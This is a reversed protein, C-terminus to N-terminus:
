YILEFDKTRFSMLDYQVATNGGDQTDRASRYNNFRESYDRRRTLSEEARQRKRKETSVDRPM